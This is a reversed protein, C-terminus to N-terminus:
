ARRQIEDRLRAIFAELGMTIQQGSEQRAAGDRGVRPGVRISLEGSAVEVDGIIAMYPVKALTAERIKQGMKEGRLDARSRLGAAVLAADVVKARDHHADTIAIVEVQVPAMWLPLAGAFHEILIGFFREISGFIARHIMVPVHPKNDSGVYSCDLAQPSPMNFDVQVTGCQWSRKLSDTIHIEIKPGYFAGEGPNIKYAQGRADLVGALAKTARDWVEDSGVSKAPRTSLALRYEFGFAKYLEDVLAMVDAIEDSLQEMTCFVHADDQTFGRTRLLGHTAGSLEHRHVLGYESLRMPLDRYSRKESNFVLCCGPCNMPKLALTAQEEGTVDVFYMNDRFNDYHGSRRWLDLDLLQPTRIEQYARARQLERSFEFLQNLATTGHPLYFPISPAEDRFVFLKLAPGLKRHDRKEAEAQIRLHEDLDAQAFFATGYIRQLVPGQPNGRWYAGAVRTVKFAGIAGMSAVHGGMCLDEFGGHAYFTIPEGRAALEDLYEAKFTEGRAVLRARAEEPSLEIRRVPDDRAIIDKMAAEIAPFDEQSFRRDGAFFDYYYGDEVPPGFALLTGPFVRQVAEAMVHACSHRLFDLARPDQKTVIVLQVAGTLVRSREVKVGDVLAGVCDRALSKGISRAVAEVTQPQDYKRVSGDPLKVELM